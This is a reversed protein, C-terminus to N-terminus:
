EPRNFDKSLKFINESCMEITHMHGELTGMTSVKGKHEATNLKIRALITRAQDEILEITNM